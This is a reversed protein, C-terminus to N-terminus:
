RGVPDRTTPLDADVDFVELGQKDADAAFVLRRGVPLVGPFLPFWFEHGGSGSQDGIFESDSDPGGPGLYPFPRPV